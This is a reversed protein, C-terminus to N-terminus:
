NLHNRCIKEQKRGPGIQLSCTERKRLHGMCIICIYLEGFHHHHRRPIPRPSPPVSKDSLPRCHSHVALLLNTFAFPSKGPLIQRRAGRSLRQPPPRVHAAGRRAAALQLPRRAAGVHPVVLVARPREGPSGGPVAEPRVLGPPSITSDAILPM